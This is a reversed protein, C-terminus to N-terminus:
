EYSIWQPDDPDEVLFMEENVDLEESIIKEMPLKIFKGGATVAVSGDPLLLEGAAEFARSTNKTVRAIVRLPVGLPVPKRYKLQITMTVGWIEPERVMIARGMAEDLLAASIGGHVRGPYSQHEERPTFLATLAGDEMEYFYARLGAPNETGCAFCYRGNKQKRIVKHRM